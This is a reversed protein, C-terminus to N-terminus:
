YLSYKTHANFACFLKHQANLAASCLIYQLKSTTKFWNADYKNGLACGDNSTKQTTLRASNSDYNQENTQRDCRQDVALRDLIYRYLLAGCSLTINRIEQPWM